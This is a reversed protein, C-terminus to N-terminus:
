PNKEHAGGGSGQRQVMRFREHALTLVSLCAVDSRLARWGMGVCRFGRSCLQELEYGTWGGEPGIAVVMRQGSVVPLESFIETAAPHAVVRVMGAFMADLEDELWPRFRRRVVVEPMRTDGSQELGEILLPGYIDPSMLHTDFYNREVKSASVLVIRGVGMAALHAWLRRMVRPRPLALVVDLPSLPPAEALPTWRVVMRAADMAEIVGQGTQGNIIGMRLPQGPEGKLIERIHVARRDELVVRGDANLEHEWFLVRNM